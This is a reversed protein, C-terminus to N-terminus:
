ASTPALDVAHRKALRRCLDETTHSTRGSAIRLYALLAYTSFIWLDDAYWWSADDALDPTVGAAIMPVARLAYHSKFHDSRGRFEVEPLYRERIQHYDLPDQRSTQAEELADAALELLVDGPFIDHRRHLPALDRIVAALDDGQAFGSLALRIAQRRDDDAPRTM